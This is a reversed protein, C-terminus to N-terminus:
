LTVIEQVYFSKCREWLRGAPLTSYWANDNDGLHLCRMFEEEAKVGMHELILLRTGQFVASPVGYEDDFSSVLTAIAQLTKLKSEM